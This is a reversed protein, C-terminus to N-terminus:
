DKLGEAATQQPQPEIQQDKNPPALAHKSRPRDLARLPKLLKNLLTPLARLAPRLPDVESANFTTVGALNGYKLPAHAKLLFILLRDSYYRREGVQEGDHFIPTAVGHVAREFAIDTLMQTAHALAAEWAAAFSQADRRRRLRYASERTMGAAKAALTVSGSHALKEIFRYQKEPTWGDARTKTPVTQFANLM